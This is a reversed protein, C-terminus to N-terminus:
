VWLKETQRTFEYGTQRHLQVTFCTEQSQPTTCNITEYLSDKQTCIWVVHRTENYWNKDYLKGTECVVKRSTSCEWALKSTKIICVFHRLTNHDWLAPRDEETSEFLMHTQVTAKYFRDTNFAPLVTVTCQPKM